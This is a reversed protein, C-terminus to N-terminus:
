GKTEEKEKISCPLLEGTKIYQHFRKLWEPQEGEHCEKIFDMLKLLRQFGEKSISHEMKCADEEAMERDMDLIVTLFKAMAEHREMVSQAAEKGEKTLNVYGYHEHVVMGAISLANIASNVSPSKVNLLKGIDKVRAVGTNKKLVAIAELYDEMNASLKRNKKLENNM